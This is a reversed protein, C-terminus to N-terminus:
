GRQHEKLFALTHTVCEDANAAAIHYADSRIVVLRSNPIQVQYARAKEVSHMQQPGGHDGVHARRHAALCGGQRSRLELAISQARQRRRSGTQQLAHELVRDVGEVSPFGVSGAASNALSRRHGAAFGAWWRGRAYSYAESPRGCVADGSGWGDQSRHYAGIRGRGQGDGAHRVDRPERSFIRLRTSHQFTRTWASRAPDLSVGAGDAAGM